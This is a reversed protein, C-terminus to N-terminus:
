NQGTKTGLNNFHKDRRCDALAPSDLTSTAQLSSVMELPVLEAGCQQIGRYVAERVQVWYPDNPITAVGIRPIQQAM